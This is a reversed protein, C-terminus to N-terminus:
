RGSARLGLIYASIDAIQRETLALDPMPPHPSRLFVSLSMGTTSAMAAIAAFSPTADTMPAAPRAEVAHCGSCWARALRGGEFADGGNLGQGSAPPMGGLLGLLAIAIFGMSRNM